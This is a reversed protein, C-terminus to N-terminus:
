ACESPLHCTVNEIHASFAFCQSSVLASFQRIRNGPLRNMYWGEKQEKVATLCEQHKLGRHCATEGRRQLRVREAMQSCLHHTFEITKGCLRM